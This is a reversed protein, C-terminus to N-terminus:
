RGGVFLSGKQPIDPEWNLIDSGTPEEPTAEDDAAVSRSRRRPAPAPEPTEEEESYDYSQDLLPEKEPLFVTTGAQTAEVKITGNRGDKIMQKYLLMAEQPSMDRTIRVQQQQEVEQQKLALEKTRFLLDFMFGATERFEKMAALSTRDNKSNDRISIIKELCIDIEDFLKGSNIRDELEVHKVMQRSLHNEKHNRLADQSVEFSRSLLPTSVGRALRKDIELKDPHNCISCKNSM